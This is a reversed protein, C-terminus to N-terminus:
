AEKDAKDSHSRYRRDCFCCLAGLAMLGGGYWIWRVFPKYYLRMSWSGDAMEDGLVAYLDRTLGGQIAPITMMTKSASYFRKQAYLTAELRDGRRVTIVGEGGQWNSGVVNQTGQFTFVYQGLEASEDINLRVDRELSYNQSFTIGTVTVAVGVHALVMGWQSRSLTRLGRWFGHRHTARSHVELLTLIAVWLAMLLGTLMMATVRDGMLKPLLWALLLTACLAVLLQRFQRRLTDRRWRLLPGVGLLLAFPAMLVRFMSNFFPEGVSISGMGLEKHVLPLLTGLLVVLMAALLLVNNGLLFTERSLLQFTAGGRLKGGKLAFLLLSGGVTVALLALIFMGRRPDSSFAHVSILVGSRVLFTGLLSLSFAVIALLLTWTRFGGRKETVALSHMLATGALWPMLSANEVPDWFWWGGWGLVYYAWASGLVIGLTLFMWAVTVWPRLWRALRTDLTGTVLAAIAFAFPVSLGVYGMYLMPPHFIMGIDQLMPNLEQGDVPYTPLTRVFPNSTFLILLLFGANIAGMVALTHARLRHPLSRSFFAVALTWGSMILLWLLLSGEHAGWTAAVRYWVPLLSNSNQVVYRVTFDNVVCVYALVLFAGLVCLFVASALPRALVMLRRDGRYAGWAPYIALLLAMGLALCLAFHGIEPMM